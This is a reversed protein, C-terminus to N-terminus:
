IQPPPFTQSSEPRVLSGPRAQTTFAAIAGVLAGVIHALPVSSVHKESLEHSLPQGSVAEYVVKTAFLLIVASWLWRARPETRLGHVALAILVASAVGSIGAYQVLSPALVLLALSIAPVAFLVARLLTAASRRELWASAPVLIALNWFLHTNSFHVWHATVARWIQGAWILKRNYILPDFAAPFRALFVAPAATCLTIWPVRRGLSRGFIPAADQSM